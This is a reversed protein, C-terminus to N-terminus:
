NGRIFDQPTKTPEPVRVPRSPAESGARLKAERVSLTDLIIEYLRNMKKIDSLYYRYTDRFLKEEVGHAELIRQQELSYLMMATDPYVIRNEIRAEAVHVDALIQVLKQEPLLNKPTKDSTQGCSALVALSLICFIRKM